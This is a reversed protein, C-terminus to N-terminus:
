KLIGISEIRITVSSTFEEFRQVKTITGKIAYEEVISGTAEVFKLCFLFNKDYISYFNESKFDEDFELILSDWQNDIVWKREPTMTGYTPITSYVDVEKQGNLYYSIKAQYGRNKPLLYNLVSDWTPYDTTGFHIHEGEFEGAGNRTRDDILYDGKNLDKRHTLILRKEAAKGFHKAIWIRKGTFSDPVNWMPTSLFYVEYYKMLQKVAAIGGKITPLDHFIDSNQECISDVKKSREDYDEGEGLYLDPALKYMGAEFDAIVGDMDVYVIQKKEM